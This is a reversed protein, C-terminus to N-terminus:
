SILQNSSVPFDFLAPSKRRNAIGIRCAPSSIPLKPRESADPLCSIIHLLNSFRSASRPLEKQFRSFPLASGQKKICFSPLFAVGPLPDSIEKWLLRYFARWLVPRVTHIKRKSRCTISFGPLKGEPSPFGGGCHANEPPFSNERWSSMTNCGGNPSYSPPIFLEGVHGTSFILNFNFIKFLSPTFSRTSFDVDTM